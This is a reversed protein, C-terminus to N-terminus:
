CSARAAHALAQRRYPQAANGGHKFAQRLLYRRQPVLQAIIGVQERAVHAFQLPEVPNGLELALQGPHQARIAM